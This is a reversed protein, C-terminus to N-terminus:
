RSPVDRGSKPSGGKDLWGNTELLGEYRGRGRPRRCVRGAGVRRVDPKMVSQFAPDPNQTQPYALILDGVSAITFGDRVSTALEDRQASAPLYIAALLAVPLALFFRRRLM